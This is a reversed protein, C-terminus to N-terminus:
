KSELVFNAMNDLLETLYKVCKQANEWYEINTIIKDDALIELSSKQEKEVLSVGGVTKLIGNAIAGILKNQYTKDLLKSLDAVIFGCEILVAPMKTSNLVQLDQRIKVGRNVASTADIIANQINNALRGTDGDMTYVLTEVGSATTSGANIHISVFLQCNNNNAIKCRNDLTVFKDSDRTLIIEINSATKNLKERLMRSFLLTFDKELYQGNTCGSDGGGHGADICLMMM